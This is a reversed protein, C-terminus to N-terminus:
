FNFHSVITNILLNVTAAIDSSIYAIVTNYFVNFKLVAPSQSQATVM